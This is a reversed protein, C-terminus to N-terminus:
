KTKILYIKSSQRAASGHQKSCQCDRFYIVKVTLKLEVHTLDVIMSLVYRYM